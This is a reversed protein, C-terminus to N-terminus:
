NALQAISPRVRLHAFGLAILCWILVATLAESDIASFVAISLLPTAEGDCCGQKPDLILLRCLLEPQSCLFSLSDTVSWLPEIVAILVGSAMRM